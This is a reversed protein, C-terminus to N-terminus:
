LTIPKDNKTKSINRKITDLKLKKEPRYKTLTWCYLKASTM